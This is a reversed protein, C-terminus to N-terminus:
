QETELLLQHIKEPVRQEVEIRAVEIARAFAVEDAGGHSKVVIGNLGVLIAGNYLRPDLKERLVNLV